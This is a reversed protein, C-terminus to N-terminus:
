RVTYPTYDPDDGDEMLREIVEGGASVDVANGHLISSDILADTLKVGPHAKAWELIAANNKTISEAAEASLGSAGKMAEAVNGGVLKDFNIHEGIGLKSIDGSGFGAAKLQDPSMAQLKDKLADIAYTREAENMGSFHSDKTSLYQGLLKWTSDGSHAEIPPVGKAWDFGGKFWSQIKEQIKFWDGGKKFWGQIKEQIYGSGMFIGAALATTKRAMM